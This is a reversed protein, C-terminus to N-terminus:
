DGPPRPGPLLPWPGRAGDQIHAGGDSDGGSCPNHDRRVGLGHHRAGDLHAPDCGHEDRLQRRLVPILISILRIIILSRPRDSHEAMYEDTGPYSHSLDTHLGLHPSYGTHPAPAPYGPVGPYPPIPPEAVGGPLHSVLGALNWPVRGAQFLSM